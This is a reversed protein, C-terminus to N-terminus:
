GRRRRTIAREVVVTQPTTEHTAPWHRIYEEAVLIEHTTQRVEVMYTPQPLQRPRYLDQSKQREEARGQDKAAVYTIYLVFLFCLGLVFGLGLAIITELM